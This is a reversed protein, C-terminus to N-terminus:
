ALPCDDRECPAGAYIGCATCERMEVPESGPQPRAARGRAILSRVGQVAGFIAAATVVLKVLGIM